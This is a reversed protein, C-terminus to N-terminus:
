ANQVVYRGDVSVPDAHDRRRPDVLPAAALGSVTSGFSRPRSRRRPTPKSPSPRVRARWPYGGKSSKATLGLPPPLVVAVHDDCVADRISRIRDCGCLGHRLVPVRESVSLLCNGLDVRGTRGPDPYLGSRVLYVLRDGVARYYFLDDALDASGHYASLAALHERRRDDRGRLLEEPVGQLAALYLVISYGVNKWISMMIVSPMAWTTSFLWNPGQIGVYSLLSNIVGWQPQYMWQWVLSVAITSTVVPVFYVSRYFTMFRLKQNLGVAILLGLATQFPIVGATFYLTNRLVRRFTEDSLLARYNGLGIFEMPSALDWRNLSYFFSAFVPYITFAVFLVLNPLLFLYAWKAEQWRLSRWFSTRPAPAKGASVIAM